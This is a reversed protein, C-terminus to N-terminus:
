TLLRRLFYTRFRGQDRSAQLFLNADTFLNKFRMVSAGRTYGFDMLVCLCICDVGNELWELRSKM